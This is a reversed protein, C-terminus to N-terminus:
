VERQLKALAERARGNTRKVRKLYALVKEPVDEHLTQLPEWTTEEFGLWKVKLEFEGGDVLRVGIISDVHTSWSDNAAQDIIDETVDLSADAYARIRQAHVMSEKGTVINKVKYVSDNVTDVIQFPGLWKVRLKNRPIMSYVLVYSGIDFHGDKAHRAVQQENNRSRTVRQKRVSTWSAHLTASLTACYEQIRAVHDKREQEDSIFAPFAAEHKTGLVSDLPHLQKTGFM